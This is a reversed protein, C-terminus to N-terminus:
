ESHKMMFNQLKKFNIELNNDESTPAILNEVEDIIDVSLLTANGM